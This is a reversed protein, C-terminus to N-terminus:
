ETQFPHRNGGEAWKTPVVPYVVFFRASQAFSIVTHRSKYKQHTHAHGSQRGTSNLTIKWKERMSHRQLFVILVFAGLRQIVKNRFSCTNLKFWELIRSSLFYLFSYRLPQKHAFSALAMFISDDLRRTTSDDNDENGNKHLTLFHIADYERKRETSMRIWSCRIVSSALITHAIHSTRVRIRMAWM